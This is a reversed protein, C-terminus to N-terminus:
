REWKFFYLFPEGGLHQNNKLRTGTASGIVMMYLNGEKDVSYYRYVATFQSPEKLQAILNGIKDNYTIPEERSKGNILNRVLFNGSAEVFIINKYRVDASGTSIQSDAIDFSGDTKNLDCNCIHHTQSDVRYQSSYCGAYPSYPSSENGYILPGDEIRNLTEGKLNMVVTEDRIKYIIEGVYNISFDIETRRLEPIKFTNLYKGNSDLIVMEGDRCPGIVINGNPDCAINSTVLNVPSPNQDNPFELIFKGTKDFKQVRSNMVDMIWINNDKDIAFDHPWVEGGSSETGFEGPNDGAIGSLILVPEKQFVANQEASSINTIFLISLLQVFCLFVQFGKGM